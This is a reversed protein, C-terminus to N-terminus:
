IPSMHIERRATHFAGGRHQRQRRSCKTTGTRQRQQWRKAGGEALRRPSGLSPRCAPTQMDREPPLAPSGCEMDPFRPRHMRHQNSHGRSGSEGREQARAWATSRASDRRCLAPRPHAFHHGGGEQRGAQLTPASSQEVVVPLSASGITTVVIGRSARAASEIFNMGRHM